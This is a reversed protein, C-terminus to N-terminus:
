QRVKPPKSLAHKVRPIVMLIFSGILTKLNLEIQFKNILPIRNHFHCGFLGKDFYQLHMPNFM